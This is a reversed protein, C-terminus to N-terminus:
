NKTDRKGLFFTSLRSAIRNGSRLEFAIQGPVSLEVETGAAERSLVRLHGGIKGTREKMGSLGWHGDRGSRLVEPDIGGGNDRVLVRL